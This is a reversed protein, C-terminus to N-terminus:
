WALSQKVIPCEEYINKMKSILNDKDVMLIRELEGFKEKFFQQNVKLYFKPGSLLNCPQLRRAAEM